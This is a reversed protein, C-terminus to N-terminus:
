PEPTVKGTEPDTATIKVDAKEPDKFVKWDFYDAVSKATIPRLAAYQALKKALDEIRALEADIKAIGRGIGGDEEGQILKMNNIFKESPTLTYIVTSEGKVIRNEKAELNFYAADGAQAEFNYSDHLDRVNLWVTQPTKADKIVDEIHGDQETVNFKFVLFREGNIRNALAIDKIDCFKEYSAGSANYGAIKYAGTGESFESNEETVVVVLNVDGLMGDLVFASTDIKTTVPTGAKDKPSFTLIVENAKTDQKCEVNVFATKDIEALHENQKVDEAKIDKIDQTQQNDVAMIDKITKTIDGNMQAIKEILAKLGADDLYKKDGLKLNDM